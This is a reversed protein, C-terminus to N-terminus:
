KVAVTVAGQSAFKGATVVIPIAAGPPIGQPVRANVQLLGFILGPGGGVYLVEAVKGSISVSVPLLPVPPHDLAIAADQGPPDTQGAGTAYISLISGAPAPNTASNVQLDQNLIAGPGKGSSDLTFIGPAAAAISLAIANSQAGNSEVHAQASMRGAMAYPVIAGIQAPQAFLVPARAEDFFVAPDAGFDSGFLSIIEGPAVAGSAFSAANVVTNLVPASSLRVQGSDPDALLSSEDVAEFDSGHLKKLENLMDNNWHDDPAGSIFWSSGNDALIMGYLQLARLIVLAPRSFASLDVSAKLRFRLGMPPYQLDMLSSAYHRAPWVYAKRTKPVTFRIAHRVEGAAVEDYRVLGPVIPLGAADASTWTAPRLANSKLDFIAGSGAHWSGDAQPYASFLEYLVCSDRDVVLV